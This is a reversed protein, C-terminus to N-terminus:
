GMLLLVDWIGELVVGVVFSRVVWVEYAVASCGGRGGWCHRERHRELERTRIKGRRRRRGGSGDDVTDEVAQKIRRRVERELEDVKLNDDDGNDHRCCM